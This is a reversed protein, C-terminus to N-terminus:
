GSLRPTGSPSSRNWDPWTAWNRRASLLLIKRTRFRVAWGDGIWEHFNVTGQTTETSFNPAEDNIRLSM